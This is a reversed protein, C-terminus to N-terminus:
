AASRLIPLSTRAQVTTTNTAPVDTPKRQTIGERKWSFGPQSHGHRLVGTGSRPTTRPRTLFLAPQKLRRRPDKTYGYWAQHYHRRQRQLQRQRQRQWRWIIRVGVAAAVDPPRWRAWCRPPSVLLLLLVSASSFSAAAAALSSSLSANLGFVFVRDERCGLPFFCRGLPSRRISTLTLLKRGGSM